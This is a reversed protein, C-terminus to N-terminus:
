ADLLRHARPRALLWGAAWALAILLTLAYVWTGAGLERDHINADIVLGSMAAMVAAPMQMSALFTVQNARPPDAMADSLLQRAAWAPIVCSLLVAVAVTPPLVEWVGLLVVCTYVAVQGFCYARITNRPGLILAMTHKGARRDGEIDSLNMLSQRLVQFASIPGVVAAMTVSVTDAQVMYCIVPCLGYLTAATTVEGLAHYNLRFPPATYFWALAMLVLMALRAATNPVVSAMLAGTFLLVFATALSTEPRVLGRVLVRSGGTWETHDTNLRDAALDFYENCYHVGLHTCWAWLLLWAYWAPQLAHGDYAALTMGLGVSASSQLLFKPRGLQVFARVFGWGRAPVQEEAWSPAVGTYTMHHSDKRYNKQPSVSRSLSSKKDLAEDHTM